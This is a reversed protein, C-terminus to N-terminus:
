FRYASRIVRVLEEDPADKLLNGVAGARSMDLQAAPSDDASIAVLRAGPVAERIDQAAGGLTDFDLLVVDPRRMGALSVAEERGRAQGVVEITGEAGAPPARDIGVVLLRIRGDARAAEAVEEVAVRNRGEQKARYLARDALEFVDEPTCAGTGLGAVGASVTVAGGGPHRLDLAEVAARLREAALAAGDLTQEPLLVLFEEGGYRYLTDGSRITAALAEAVARLVEDGSQHGAGDNYGKFHDVDLLVACYAHGYRDVRGCLAVVDEALRLRNGVGTLADQRADRHLRRHLTTVRQAAILKRELDAPQIPKLILDDAGAEMADRTKGEDSQATVVVVFAYAVDPASRIRRVLGAGDLRPMELDTIVVDPQIEHFRALAEEGDSAEACEHGLRAVAACLLLRSPADDDAILVRM